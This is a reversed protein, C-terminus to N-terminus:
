SIQNGGGNLFLFRMYSKQVFIGQPVGYLVVFRMLWAFSLRGFLFFLFSSRSLSLLNTYTHIDKHKM